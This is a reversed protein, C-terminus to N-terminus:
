DGAVPADPFQEVRVTVITNRGNRKADYLAHDASILLNSVSDPISRTWAIGISVTTTRESLVHLREHDRRIRSAVQEADVGDSLPLFVAFEEGGIRGAIADDPLADLICAASRVLAIDGVAHGLTDNITKFHDLDLMMLAISTDAGSLDDLHQQSRRMFASRSLTGTLGDFEVAARLRNQVTARDRTVAAVLLPGLALLAVSLTTASGGYADTTIGGATNTGAHGVVVLTWGAWIATLATTGAMPVKTACWLLAPLPLALLLPGRIVMAASMALLAAVIPIGFETVERPLSRDRRRLLTPARFPSLLVPLVILYSTAESGFWDLAMVVPGAGHLYTLIVATTTSLVSAVAVMASIRGLARSGTLRLPCWRLRRAVLAAGTVGVINAVNFALTTATDTGSLLDAGVYALFCLVLAPVSFLRPWRVFVGLLVANALWLSASLGPPRTHVGVLATLFVVLALGIVRVTASQDVLSRFPPM